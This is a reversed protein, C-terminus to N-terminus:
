NRIIHILCALRNDQKQRIFIKFDVEFHDAFYPCLNIVNTCRQLTILWFFLVGNVNTLFNIKKYIRSFLKLYESQEQTCVTGTFISLMGAICWIIYLKRFGSWCVWVTLNFIASRIPPYLSAWKRISFYLLLWLSFIQLTLFNLFFM